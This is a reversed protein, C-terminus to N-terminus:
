LSATPTFSVTASAGSGSITATGGVPNKYYINYSITADEGLFEDITILVDYKTATYPSTTTMDVEILTTEIPQASRRATDLMTYIDDDSYIRKGSVSSQIDYNKFVSDAEDALITKYTDVQANYSMSLAEVGVGERKYSATGVGKNIDIFHAYSSRKNQAM